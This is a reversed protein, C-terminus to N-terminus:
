GSVPRWSPADNVWACEGCAHTLKVRHAGNADSVYIQSSSAGNFASASSYVILRGDPSWGPDTEDRSPTNTVRKLDGGDTSMTWLDLQDGADAPDGRDSSFLIRSGDPSWSPGVAGVTLDDTLDTPQGGAAPVTYIQDFPGVGPSYILRDFAIETGDPSWSPDVDDGTTLRHRDQGDAGIVWIGEEAVPAAVVFAIQKGDPSWDPELEYEDPTSDLRRQGSGDANMTWLDSQKYGRVFVVRRGDPAYSPDLNSYRRSRTLPHRQTGTATMTYIQFRNGNGLHDYAIRGNGRGPSAGGTQQGYLALLAFLAAVLVPRRLM